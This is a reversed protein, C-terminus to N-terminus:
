MLHSTSRQRFRGLPRLLCAHGAEVGFDGLEVDFIDQVVRLRFTPNMGDLPVSEVPHQRPTFFVVHGNREDEATRIRGSKKFTHPKGDMDLICALLFDQVPDSHKEEAASWVM